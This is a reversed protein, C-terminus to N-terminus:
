AADPEIRDQMWAQVESALWGVANRSLRRRRPFDDNREMRWRTTRSLGTLSKVEPERMFRDPNKNQIEPM